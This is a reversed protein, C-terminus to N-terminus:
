APGTPQISLRPSPSHATATRDASTWPLVARNNAPTPTTESESGAESSASVWSLNCASRAATTRGYSGQGPRPKVQGPHAAGPRGPGTPGRVCCLGRPAVGPLHEPTGMVAPAGWGGMVSKRGGLGVTAPPGRRGQQDHSQPRYPRQVGRLNLARGAESNVFRMAELRFRAVVKTYGLHLQGSIEIIAGDIAPRSGAPLNDASLELRCLSISPDLPGVRFGAGGCRPATSPELVADLGTVRQVSRLQSEPGILPAIITSRWRSSRVCRRRRGM